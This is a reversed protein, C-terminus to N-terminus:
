KITFGLIYDANDDEVVSYREVIEDYNPLAKDVAIFPMVGRLKMNLGETLIECDPNITIVVVESELDDEVTEEYDELLKFQVGNYVSEELLEFIEKARDSSTMISLWADKGKQKFLYDMTQILDVRLEDMCSYDYEQMSAAFEFKM